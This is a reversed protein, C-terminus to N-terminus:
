AADRHWWVHALKNVHSSGYRVRGDFARELARGLRVALHETTTTVLVDDPHGNDHWAVIQALPNDEAANAAETKLLRVIDDRHSRVFQGDVHVFGHPVGSRSRRCPKCIRVSIPRGAHTTRVRAEAARSWREGVYVAGCGGCM